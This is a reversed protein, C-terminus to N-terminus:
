VTLGTLKVRVARTVTGFASVDVAHLTIKKGIWDEVFPTGTTASIAKANTKNLIMGKKAGEFWIVTVKEKKKGNHAEDSKISKITMEIPERIEEGSIFRYDFNKRWHTKIESM